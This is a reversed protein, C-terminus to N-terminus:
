MGEVGRAAEYDFHHAVNYIGSIGIFADGAVRWEDESEARGRGVTGYLSQKVDLYRKAQKVLWLLSIHAGSSHGMVCFGIERQIRKPGCLDPFQRALEVYANELDAVQCAVNGYPYVRYGVIAVAMNLDLFSQAVLRYYWSKGSGWAGGHVFFVMGTWNNRSCREEDPHYLEIYQYAHDGYRLPKCRRSLHLFTLAASPNAVAGVPITSEVLTDSILRFGGSDRVHNLWHLPLLSGLFRTIQDASDPGFVLHPHRVLPRANYLLHVLGERIGSHLNYKSYADDNDHEAYPEDDHPHVGLLVSRHATGFPPCRPPSLSLQLAKHTMLSERLSERLSEPPRLQHGKGNPM